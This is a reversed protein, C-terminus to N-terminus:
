LEVRAASASDGRGGGGSRRQEALNVGNKERWTQWLEWFDKEMSSEMQDPLIVMYEVYLRGFDEGGRQEHLHGDQYIPMGEGQITEVQGPQVVQGRPRSIQVVHGDLHTLNRTWDGMWAERLSLVEKWWLDDGKRRMWVGNTNFSAAANEGDAAHASDLSPPQELVTVIMDGAIYDPSEDAENEFRLRYGKPIGREISATLPISKREVRHGGCVRCPRKIRKGKGGCSDCQMQMQQFIGPALMHKQVVAGRGGCKSCAEVVGDASGSGGCEECVVQKEVEFEIEKGTYFDALPLQIRFEMDPGRRVGGGGGRFHGSGGFFRSFLEFPDHHQQGAGRGEQHQKVGDHGYQDYIKRLTSDSLIEYAEAVEVFRSQATSNNPNKDPHYKKSLTRYARKIERETADRSIHLLSYYDETALVLTAEFFLFTFILPFIFSLLHM